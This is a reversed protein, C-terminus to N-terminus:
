GQGQAWGVWGRECNDTHRDENVNMPTTTSLHSYHLSYTLLFLFLILLFFLSVQSELRPHLSKDNTGRTKREEGIRWVWGSGNDTM